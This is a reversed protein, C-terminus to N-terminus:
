GTHRLESIRAGTETALQVAAKAQDTLDGIEASRHEDRIPSLHLAIDAAKVQEAYAELAAVRDSVGRVADEMAEKASGAAAKGGERLEPHKRRQDSLGRLAQAIEWEHRPLAVKNHVNDLLGAANVDSGLVVDAARQTRALLSRAPGDLDDPGVFHGHGLRLDKSWNGEGIVVRPRLRFLLWLIPVILALWSVALVVDHIWGLPVVIGSLGPTLWLGAPNITQHALMFMIVGGGGLGAARVPRRAEWRHPLDPEWYWRVRAPPDATSHAPNLELLRRRLSEPLDPDVAVRPPDPLGARSDDAM